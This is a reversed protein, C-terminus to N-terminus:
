ENDPCVIEQWSTGDFVWLEQHEMSWMEEGNSYLRRGEAKRGIDFNQVTDNELIYIGETSALYVRNKFSEVAWFNEHVQNDILEWSDRFGRLVVGAKGCAFCLNHSVVRVAELTQNTPSDAQKWGRGDFYWIDGNYGVAHITDQGLGDIARFGVTTSNVRLEGDFRSWQSDTRRYVQRGVGVAYLTGDIVRLDSLYGFKGPGTGAEVILEEFRGKPSSSIVKGRKSLLWWSWEEDKRTYSVSVIDQNFERNAWKGDRTMYFRTFEVEKGELEYLYAAVGFLGKRPSFGAIFYVRNKRM